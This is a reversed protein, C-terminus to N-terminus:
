DNSVFSFLLDNHADLVVVSVFYKTYAGATPYTYGLNDKATGAFNHTRQQEDDSAQGLGGEPSDTIYFPHYRAPNSSKDGGEVIFTYKEGREM